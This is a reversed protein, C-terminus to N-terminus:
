SQIYQCPLQQRVCVVPPVPLWYMSPQPRRTLRAMGRALSSTLYWMTLVLCRGLRKSLFQCLRLIRQSPSKQTFLYQLSDHDSYIEFKQGLLLARWTQLAVQASLVEVNRADYRYQAGKLKCSVFAVPRPHKEGEQVTAVANQSGDIHVATRLAPDFHQLVPASTLASKLGVCATQCAM